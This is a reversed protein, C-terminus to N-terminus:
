SRQSSGHVNQFAMKKLWLLNQNRNNIWVVIKWREAQRRQKLSVARNGICCLTQRYPRLKAMTVPTVPVNNKLLNLVIESIVNVQDKKAHKIFETKEETGIRLNFSPKYFRGKNEFEM